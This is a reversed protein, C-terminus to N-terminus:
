IVSSCRREECPYAMLSYQDMWKEMSDFNVPIECLQEIQEDNEPALNGFYSAYTYMTENPMKRKFANMLAKRKELFELPTDRKKFIRRFRM